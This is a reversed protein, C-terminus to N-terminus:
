FFLPFGFTNAGTQARSLTGPFTKVGFVPSALVEKPFDQGEGSVTGVPELSASDRGISTPGFALPLVNIDAWITLKPRAESVSLAYLRSCTM